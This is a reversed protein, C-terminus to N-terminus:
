IDGIAQLFHISVGTWCRNPSELVLHCLLEASRKTRKSDNSCLKQIKLFEKLSSEGDDDDKSDVPVKVPGCDDIDDGIVKVDM